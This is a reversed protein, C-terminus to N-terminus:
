DEISQVVLADYGGLIHNWKPTGHANTMLIMVLDNQPDIRFITQWYGAWGWYGANRGAKDDELLVSGGYGFAEGNGRRLSDIQNNMMMAVTSPKLVRTDGLIGRNKIATAFKLYDMATGVLGAGGPFYSKAGAVPYDSGISVYSAPNIDSTFWVDVLRDAKEDPLYFYTDIMELPKFLNEEFYEDLPMGSVIEVIYGLVDINTGYTWKEGPQHMLPAQAQRPINEALTVAEKTWAEKFAFRPYIVRAIPNFLAYPIGSTHTLLHHITVERELPKTTFSSDTKDWTDIVALNSFEPIYKSVPDNLGIKGQEVLQMVATTTIPKTMSALRFINDEAMPRTKARDSYGFAEHYIIKDEKAILAVAGAIYSSDIAWKIHNEIDNIEQQDLGYSLPDATKLPQEDPNKTDTCSITLLGLLPILFLKM